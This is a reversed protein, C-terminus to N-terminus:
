IELMTERLSWKNARMKSKSELESQFLPLAQLLSHAKMVGFPHMMQNDAHNLIHCHIAYGPGASADFKFHEGDFPSWHMFIRTVQHNYCNM